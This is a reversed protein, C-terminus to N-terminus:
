ISCAWRAPRAATALRRPAASGYRRRPSLEAAATGGKAYLDGVVAAAEPDGALAARRLWSEGEVPNAPVGDGEMLAMGWRAQSPRNGKEAAQRFM